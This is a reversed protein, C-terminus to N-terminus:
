ETVEVTIVYEDIPAVGDEWPRLYGLRLPATGVGTPTFCFTTVGGAGGRDSEPEYSETTLEVLGPELVVWQYGTTPNAELQLELTGTRLLMGPQELRSMEAANAEGFVYGKWQGGQAPASDTNSSPAQLRETTSDSLQM